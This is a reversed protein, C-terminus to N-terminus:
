FPIDDDALDDHPQQNPRNRVADTLREEGRDEFLVFEDVMLTRSYLKVNLGKGGDPKQFSFAKGVNWYHTKEAGSRDVYKRAIVVNYKENAM